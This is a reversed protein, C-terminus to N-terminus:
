SQELLAATQESWDGSPSYTSRDRESRFRMEMERMKLAIDEVRVRIQDNTLVELNATAVTPQAAITEMSRSIEEVEHVQVQEVLEGLRSFSVESEGHKIQLRPLLDGLQARFLYVSAVIAAPWALSAISQIAVAALGYGNTVEAM